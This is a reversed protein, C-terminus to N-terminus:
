DETYKWIFGGASKRKGKCCSSISQSAIGLEEEVQKIYDWTKILNMQYDYQNVKKTRSNKTGKNAESMKKKSEETHHKGYMPNDKGKLKGYNHNKEGKLSESRKRDSEKRAEETMYDRPNKGYMPNKEGRIKEGHGYNPHNEKKFDAHNESMRKRIEIMEEETKGAFPNNYGGEAVNYGNQITLTKYRKIFFVEYENIKEQTQIDEALIKIDFNEIGYKRIARHFPVDYDYKQKKNNSSNIHQKYRKIFDKAQGVYKKGNIKNIYMYICNYHNEM